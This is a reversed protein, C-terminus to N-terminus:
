HDMAVRRYESPAIGVNSSFFRTFSAQSSFGLDYGIETVSKETVMLDSIAQESRLTNIFLNPTIGMQKKFLKFFHPRSLGVERALWEMEVDETFHEKMLRLARRVRFDNFRARFREQPPTLECHHWSQFYCRRMTELLFADVMTPDDQGLLVSTLRMVWRQIEPTMIIENRGFSLAFEATQCTELFWMPKMYLVLCFCPETESLPVFKHPEWPSIAVGRTQDLLYDSDCVEVIAPARSVYFILHGERHAHTVFKANLEYLAARGFDGHHVAFAGSM